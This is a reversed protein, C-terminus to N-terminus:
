DITKTPRTLDPLPRSMVEDIRKPELGLGQLIVRVIMDSYNKLNPNDALRLMSQRVAGMALDYGAEAPCKFAGARIGLRIDRLPATTAFGVRFWMRGVFRSWLRDEEAKRMWLRLGMCHRLAPDKIRLIEREISEVLDDTLWNSTAELLESTSKYYNYFTGRAIGAEKIFDDITPAYPGKEAFVHLAAQLIKAETKARRKQGVVTRHNISFSTDESPAPDRLTNM